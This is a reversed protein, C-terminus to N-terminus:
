EATPAAPTSRPEVERDLNRRLRADDDVVAAAVGLDVADRGQPDGVTRAIQHDSADRTFDRDVILRAVDHDFLGARDAEVVLGAVDRDEVGGRDGDDVVARSVDLEAVMVPSTLMRSSPEPSM